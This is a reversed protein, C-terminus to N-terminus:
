LNLSLIFLNKKTKMMIVFMGKQGYITGLGGKTLYKVDEFQDFPDM